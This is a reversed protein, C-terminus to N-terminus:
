VHLIGWIWTNQWKQYFQCESSLDKAKQLFDDNIDIGVVNAGMSSMLNSQYGFGCGLDLIRPKWPLLVIFDEIVANWFSKWYGSNSESAQVAKNIDSSASIVKDNNM